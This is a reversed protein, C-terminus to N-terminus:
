PWKAKGTRYRIPVRTSSFWCSGPTKTPNEGVQSEFAILERKGDGDVDIVDFFRGIGNKEMLVPNEELSRFLPETRTGINKYFIIGRGRRLNALMDVLGDGDWDVMKYDNALGPLPAKVKRGYTIPDYPISYRDAPGEDHHSGTVIQLEERSQNEDAPSCAFLALLTCCVIMKFKKFM